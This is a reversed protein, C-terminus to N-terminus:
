ASQPVVVLMLGGSSTKEVFADRVYGVETKIQQAAERYLRRAQNPGLKAAHLPYFTLVKEIRKRISGDEDEFKVSRPALDKNYYLIAKRRLLNAVGDAIQDIRERGVMRHEKSSEYIENDIKLRSNPGVSHTELGGKKMVVSNRLLEVAQDIKRWLDTPKNYFLVLDVSLKSM